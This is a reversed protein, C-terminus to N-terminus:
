KASFFHITIFLVVIRSVPLWIASYIIDIPSVEWLSGDELILLKGNATVQQIWHELGVGPYLGDTHQQSKNKPPTRSSIKGLSKEVSWKIPDRNEFYITVWLSSVDAMFYKGEFSLPSFKLTWKKLLLQDGSQTVVIINDDDIEKLIYIKETSAFAHNVLLFISLWFIIVSHRVTWTLLVCLGLWCPIPSSNQTDM